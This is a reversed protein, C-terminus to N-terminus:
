CRPVKNGSLQMGVEATADTPLAQVLYPLLLLLGTLGVQLIGKQLHWIPLVIVIELRSHGTKIWPVSVLWFLRRQERTSRYVCGM